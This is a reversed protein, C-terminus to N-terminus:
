RGRLLDELGPRRTSPESSPSEAQTRREVRCNEFVRKARCAQVAARDAREQRDGDTGYFGPRAVVEAQWGRRGQRVEVVECLAPDFEAVCEQLATRVARYDKDDEAVFRKEGIAVAWYYAARAQAAFLLAACLAAISIWGRSRM